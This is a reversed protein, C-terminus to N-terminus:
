KENLSTERRVVVPVPSNLDPKLHMETKPGEPVERCAYLGTIQTNYRMKARLEFKILLFGFNISLLIRFEDTLSLYLQQKGKQSM